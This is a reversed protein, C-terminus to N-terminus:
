KKIEQTLSKSFKENNNISNRAKQLKNILGNMKQNDKVLEKITSKSNGDFNKWIDEM